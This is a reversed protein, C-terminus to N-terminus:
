DDKFYNMQLIISLNISLNRYKLEFDEFNGIYATKIKRDCSYEFYPNISINLKKWKHNINISPGLSVFFKPNKSAYGKTIGAIVIASFLNRKKANGIEVIGFVKPYIGDSHFEDFILYPLSIGGGLNFISVPFLVSTQIGFQFCNTEESINIKVLGPPNDAKSFIYGTISQFKFHLKPGNNQSYSSRIGVSCISLLMVLCTFCRYILLKNFVNIKEKMMNSKWANM